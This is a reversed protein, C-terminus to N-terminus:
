HRKRREITGRRIGRYWDAPGEPEEVAQLYNYIFQNWMGVQESSMGTAVGTLSHLHKIFKGPDEEKWGKDPDVARKIDQSIEWLKQLPVGIIGPAPQQGGGSMLGVIERIGLFAGGINHVFPAAIKWALNEEEDDEKGILWDQAAWYFFAPLGIYATTLGAMESAYQPISQTHPDGRQRETVADKTRWAMRYFQGYVHNYYSYLSTFWRAASSTRRMFEPRGVVSTSGHTQRVAFDARTDAKTHAEELTMGQEMYQKRLKKYLSNWLITSSIMDGFAIPVSSMQMVFERMSKAKMAMNDVGHAAAYHQWRRKIERSGVFDLSGVKGGQMVFTWSKVQTKDDTMGLDVASQWFDMKTLGLRAWSQVFTSPVHKMFTGIKLGVLMMISNQRFFESYKNAAALAGSDPQYPQAIDDHLQKLMDYYERGMRKTLDNRLGTDNLIKRFDRLVERFALDHIRRNMDMDLSNLHLELPGAPGTRKREWGRYTRTNKNPSLLQTKKPGGDLAKDYHVPYYWGDMKGFPTDIQPLPLSEVMTNSERMTVEHGMELLKAYMKGVAQAWEWDDKTAVKKLWAYTQAEDTHYGEVLRERNSKNGWNLLAGRVHEHTLPMLSWANPDPVMKGTVPDKVMYRPDHFHGYVARSTTSGFKKDNDIRAQRFAKHHQDFFYARDNLPDTIFKTFFGEENGKDLRILLDEPRVTGVHYRKLLGAKKGPATPMKEPGIETLQKRGIAVEKQFDAEEGLRHLKGQDAGIKQLSQIADNFARFEGVTMDKVNKKWNPWNDLIFDPIILYPDLSAEFKEEGARIANLDDAFKRLDGKHERAQFMMALDDPHRDVKYGANMLLQQIFETFEAPFNDPYRKYFRKAVREAADRQKDLLKVQRAMEFLHVQMWKEQFAGIYDGALFRSEAEKGTRYMEQFFYKYNAKTQLSDLFSEHAMARVDEKSLSIKMGARSALAVAEETLLELQDHGVVQEMAEQLNKEALDGYKLEMRRDTEKDVMKEFFARPTLSGKAKEFQILADILQAGTQYGFPQALTDPDVGKRDQWRAPFQDRQEKTLLRPDVKPMYHTEQGFFTGNQFFARARFDPRAGIDRAVEERMEERAAKWEPASRKKVERLAKEREIRIDNANQDGMHRQYQAYKKKDMIAGPEFTPVAGEIPVREPIEDMIDKAEGYRQLQAEREVSMGLPQRKAMRGIQIDRFIEEATADRGMFERVTSKIGDVIEKIKYFIKAMPHADRQEQSQKAWEKFKDAIAEELFLEPEAHRLHEYRKMAETETWGGDIAAKKLTAWEEPMIFQYHRLFHIAEHGATLFPAEAELSFAILGRTGVDDYRFLGGIRREGRPGLGVIERYGHVRVRDKGVVKDLFDEIRWHLQLEKLTWPEGRKAMVGQGLDSFGESILQLFKEHEPGIPKGPEWGAEMSALEELLTKFPRSIREGGWVTFGESGKAREIAAKRRSGTVRTGGWHTAEPYNEQIQRVLDRVAAPGVRNILQTMMDEPGLHPFYGLESVKADGVWAIYAEKGYKKPTIELSAIPRGGEDVITWADKGYGMYMDPAEGRVMTFKRPGERTLDFLPELGASKRVIDVLRDKIRFPMEAEIDSGQLARELSRVGPMRVTSITEANPYKQKLQNMLTILGAVDYQGKEWAIFLNKGGEQEIVRVQGTKVGGEDHIDHVGEGIDKLTYPRRLEESLGPLEQEHITSIEPDRKVLEKATRRDMGGEFFLDESILKYLEKDLGPLMELPIEIPEGTVKDSREFQEAIRPVDGLLKDGPEPLKDGYLSRAADWRLYISRDGDRFAIKNLEAFAEPSLEKGETKDAKEIVADLATMRNISELGILQDLSPDVGRPPREGSKIWNEAREFTRIARDLVKGLKQNEAAKQAAIQSEKIKAPAKITGRVAGGVLLATYTLGEILDERWGTVESIPRFVETRTLGSLPAGLIQLAGFALATPSLHSKNKEVYEDLQRQLEPNLFSPLKEGEEEKPEPHPMAFQDAIIKIGGKVDNLVEPLARAVMFPTGQIGHRFIWPINEKSFENFDRISKTYEGLAGWDDQSVASGVPNERVYQRLWPEQEVIGQAAEGKSKKYIRDYENLIREPSENIENSLKLSGAAKNKDQDLGKTISDNERSQFRRVINDAIEDDTVPM